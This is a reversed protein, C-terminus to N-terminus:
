SSSHGRLSRPVTIEQASCWWREQGSDSPSIRVTRRTAAPQSAGSSSSRRCITRRVATAVNTGLESAFTFWEDPDFVAGLAALVLDLPTPDDWSGCFEQLLVVNFDTAVRGRELQGILDLWDQFGSRQQGRSSSLIISNSPCCLLM